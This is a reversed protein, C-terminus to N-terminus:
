RGAVQPPLSRQTEGCRCTTAGVAMVHMRRAGGPETACEGLDRPWWMSPPREVPWPGPATDPLCAECQATIPDGTQGDPPPPGEVLGCLTWETREDADGALSYGIGDGCRACRAQDFREVALDILAAAFREPLGTAYEPRIVEFRPEMPEGDLVLVTYGTLPEPVTHRLPTVTEPLTGNLQHRPTGPAPAVPNLLTPDERVAAQRLRVHEDMSPM